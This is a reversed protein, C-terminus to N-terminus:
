NIQDKIKKLEQKLTYYDERNDCKEIMKEIIKKLEM